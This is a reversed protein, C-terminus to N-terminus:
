GRMFNDLLCLGADGSKEPHFQVAILQQHRISACFRGGHDATALPKVSTQPACYYSHVFYFPTDNTIGRWIPDNMEWHVPNWGMHPVKLSKDSLAFRNVTGPVIGLCEVGGDEESRAFLLQMGVCICLLPKNSRVVDALAKDLQGQRLNAMCSEAAGVGPFIVKDARAITASDATIEASHGLHHLARQVSTLNGAQYDIIAVRMSPFRLNRARLAVPPRPVFRPRPPTFYITADRTAGTTDAHEQAPRRSM